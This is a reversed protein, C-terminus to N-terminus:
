CACKRPPTLATTQCLTIWTCQQQTWLHASREGGDNARVLGVGHHFMGRHSCIISCWKGNSVAGDDFHEICGPATDTFEATNIKGINICRTASKAHESLPSLLAHNRESNRRSVCHLVPEGDAAKNRWIRSLRREENASTASSYILSRNSIDNM